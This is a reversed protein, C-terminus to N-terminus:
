NWSYMQDSGPVLWLVGLCRGSVFRHVEVIMRVVLELVDKQLHLMQLRNEPHFPELQRYSSDVRNSVLVIEVDVAEGDFTLM